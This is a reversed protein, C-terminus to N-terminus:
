YGESFLGKYMGYTYMRNYYAYVLSLFTDECADMYRNHEPICRHLIHEEFLGSTKSLVLVIYGDAEINYSERLMYQYAALQYFYKYSLHNSTKFDILYIKGNIRVLLDLKGGFYRCVLEQEQMLVEVNNQSLIKWYENFAHYASNVENVYEAKVKDINLPVNNQIYNEIAEHVTSGIDSARTLVDKYKQKKYYGIYNSWGMLSDDHLMESLIHTVRPVPVNNYLYHGESEPINYEKSITNLLKIINEM